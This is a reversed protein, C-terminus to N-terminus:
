KINQVLTDQTSSIEKMIQSLTSIYKSRRDVTMLLRLSDMESMSDMTLLLGDQGGFVNRM